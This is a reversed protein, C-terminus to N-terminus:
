PGANGFRSLDSTCQGLQTCLTGSKSGLFLTDVYFSTQPLVGAAAGVVISMSAYPVNRIYIMSQLSILSDVSPPALHYISTSLYVIPSYLAPYCTVTCHSVYQGLVFIIICLGKVLLFSFKM